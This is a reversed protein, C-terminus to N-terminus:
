WVAAALGIPSFARNSYFNRDEAAMVANRVHIPIEALTVVTRNESGIRGIESGDAYQIITAQSNVYANPDPISVTFYAFGFVFVGVVFTFGTALFALRPLKGVLNSM